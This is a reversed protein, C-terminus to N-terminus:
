KELKSWRGFYHNKDINIAKNNHSVITVCYRMELSSQLL